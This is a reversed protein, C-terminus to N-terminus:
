PTDENFALNFPPSCPLQYLRSAATPYTSTLCKSWHLSCLLKHLRTAADPYNITPCKSGNLYVKAPQPKKILM